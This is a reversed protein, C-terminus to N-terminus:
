TRIPSSDEVPLVRFGEAAAQNKLEEIRSPNMHTLLVASNGLRALTRAVNLGKGSFESRARSTRNVQGTRVDQAIAPVLGKEDFRIQDLEM